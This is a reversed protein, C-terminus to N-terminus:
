KPYQNVKEGLPTLCGADSDPTEYLGQDVSSSELYHPIQGPSGNWLLPLTPTSRHGHSWSAMDCICWGFIVAGLTCGLLRNSPCSIYSSPPLPRDAFNPAMKLIDYTCKSWLSIYPVKDRILLICSDQFGLLQMKKGLPCLMLGM